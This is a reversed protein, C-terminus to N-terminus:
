KADVIRIDKTYPDFKKEKPRLRDAMLDNEKKLFIELDMEGDTFKKDKITLVKFGRHERSDIFKSESALLEMEKVKMEAEREREKEEYIIREKEWKKGQRIM